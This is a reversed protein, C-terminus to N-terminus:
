LSELDLTPNLAANLASGIIYSLNEIVEDVEKPTVVMNETYPDLIKCILDYKEESELTKLTDFFASDHTKIDELMIDLTDNVLTAADVVTPVGIAIVPVGLTDKDLGARKNGVGAGPSVGTDALQITANIRDARRAALSDVAIVLDPHTHEAIGRIIDRTEIGTIGMVGPSVASVARTDAPLSDLIHRTVTIEGASRPGLADATIRRNGLGVALVNKANKFIDLKCLYKKLLEALRRHADKDDTKMYPSEITIYNGIPRGMAAAGKADTIKIHTVTTEPLICDEKIVQIGETGMDPARTLCEAAEIALDTVPYFSKM